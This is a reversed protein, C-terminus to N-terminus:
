EEAEENKLISKADEDLNQIVSSIVKYLKQRSNNNLYDTRSLVSQVLHIDDMNKYNNVTENAMREAEEPHKNYYNVDIENNIELGM